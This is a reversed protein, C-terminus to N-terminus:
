QISGNAKNFNLLSENFQNAYLVTDVIIIKRHDVVANANFSHADVPRGIITGQMQHVGSRQFDGEKIEIM